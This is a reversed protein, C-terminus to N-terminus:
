AIREARRKAFHRERVEAKRREYEGEDMQWPDQVRQGDARVPRGRQPLKHREALTSLYGEAVGLRLAVERRTIPEQWLKFLLAVDVQPAMTV